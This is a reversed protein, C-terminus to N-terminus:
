FPMIGLVLEKYYTVGVLVTPIGIEICIILKCYWPDDKYWPLVRGVVTGIKRLM